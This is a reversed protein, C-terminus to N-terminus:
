PNMADRLERAPVGRAIADALWANVAAQLATDDVMLVAKDSRNLTAPTTRCLAPQRLAHLEAEVDDTIMVDAHGAVIEDFVTRNDAHVIIRAHRLHERVYRENTGGPNVIVRVKRRDVQALTRYRAREACRALFTKGGSQYPLSFRGRARREPTISIGGLAVDFRQAALDALLSPWSTRVFM